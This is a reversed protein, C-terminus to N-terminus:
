GSVTTAQIKRLHALIQLTRMFHNGTDHKTATAIAKLEDVAKTFDKNVVVEDFGIVRLKDAQTRTVLPSWLMYRVEFGVLHAAAYKRQQQHKAPMKDLMQPRMTHLHTTVECVYAKKEPLNLGIVDLERLGELPGGPPRVNYLVIGCRHIRQLYAGVIYEGAETPM